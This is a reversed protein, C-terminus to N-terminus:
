KRLHFRILQIADKYYLRALELSCILAASSILVSMGYCHISKNEDMSISSVVILDGTPDLMLGIFYFFVGMGFLGAISVRLESVKPFAHQVDSLRKYEDDVFASVFSVLFCFVAVFVLYIPLM